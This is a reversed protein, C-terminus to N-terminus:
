RRSGSRLREGNREEPRVLEAARRRPGLAPSGGAFQALEGAASLPDELIEEYRVELFGGGSQSFRLCEGLYQRTLSRCYDRDLCPDGGAAPLMGFWRRARQLTAVPHLAWTRARQPWPLPLGPSRSWIQARRQLSDVVAEPDRRVHLIRARPFLRLWYPLTLSNRPDKWGWPGCFERPVPRLYRSRLCGFTAMQLLAVNSGAFESRDRRELFPVVQHWTAGARGLVRENLIRFDAAEAYGNLWRPGSPFGPQEWAELWGEPGMFVGLAELMAAVLSTGSRHMGIVILPPPLLDFAPHILLRRQEFAPWKEGSRGARRTGGGGSRQAQQQVALKGGKAGYGLNVQGAM